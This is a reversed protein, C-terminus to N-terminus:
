ARAPSPPGRAPAPLEHRALVLQAKGPLRASSAAVAQASLTTEECLPVIPCSAAFPCLGHDSASPKSPLPKGSGDVDLPQPGHGTCIVITVRGGDVASPALMFGAPVLSRLALALVFLQTFIRRAV